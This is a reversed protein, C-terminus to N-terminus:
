LSLASQETQAAPRPPVAAAGGRTRRRKNATGGRSSNSDTSPKQWKNEPKNREKEKLIAEEKAEIGQYSSQWEFHRQLLRDLLNGEGVELLAAIQKAGKADACMVLIEGGDELDIEDIIGKLAKWKPQVEIAPTTADALVRGKALKLITDAADM